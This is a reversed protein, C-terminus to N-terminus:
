RAEEVQRKGRRILDNVWAADVGVELVPVSLASKFGRLHGQEVFIESYLTSTLDLQEIVLDLSDLCSQQFTEWVQVEGLDQGDRLTDAGHVLALDAIRGRELADEVRVNAIASDSERHNRFVGSHGVTDDQVFVRAEEPFIDRVAEANEFVNATNESHVRWVAGLLDHPMLLEHRNLVNVLLCTLENARGQSLGTGWTGVPDGSGLLQDGCGEGM